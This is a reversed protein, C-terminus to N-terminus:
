KKGDQLQEKIRKLEEPNEKRWLDWSPHSAKWELWERCDPKAIFPELGARCRICGDFDLHKGCFYLGCGKGGYPEQNKCVYALGRDIKENCEPHDCIAPVGYGIDRKWRSDYGISYGM